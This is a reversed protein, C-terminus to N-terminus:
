SLRYCFRSLGVMMYQKPMSAGQRSSLIRPTTRPKTRRHASQMFPMQREHAPLASAINYRSRDKHGAAIQVSRPGREIDEFM